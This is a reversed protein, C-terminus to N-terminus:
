NIWRVIEFCEAFETNCQAGRVKALSFIFEKSFYQRKAVFQTKYHELSGWKREIDIADLKVFYQYDFQIHNWPLEYSIISSTNKFCRITEQALVQHDQHYDHVSPCIVLSPSLRERISILEDLIRQRNDPFTRVSFNFIKYGEPNINLYQMSQIFEQELADPAFGKPLSQECSSFAVIYIDEKERVLRSIYGGCGIEADDTHPAVILIM